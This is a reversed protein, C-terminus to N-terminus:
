QQSPMMPRPGVLSMTGTLVNFLQPLEDMSTKRLIQGIRTIRIDHKLKQTADWEAKLEPNRALHAALMADANPVMTRIKIIRFIRGNRGVREQTYFPSSGDLAVFLAMLLIVPLVLPLSLLVVVTELLRKFGSDYSFHPFHRTAADIIAVSRPSSKLDFETNHVDFPM